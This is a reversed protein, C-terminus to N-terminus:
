SRRSYGDLLVGVIHVRPHMSANFATHHFTTDTLWTTNEPMHKVEDEDIELNIATRNIFAQEEKTIKGDALALSVIAAFHDRNKSKFRQTYLESLSM